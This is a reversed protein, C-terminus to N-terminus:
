RVVSLQELHLLSSHLQTYAKHFARAANIRVDLLKEEYLQLSRITQDRSQSIQHKKQPFAEIYLSTLQNLQEIIKHLRSIVAERFAVAGQPASLAKSINANSRLWTIHGTIEKLREQFANSNSM